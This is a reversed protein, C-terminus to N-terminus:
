GGPFEFPHPLGLDLYPSPDHSWAFEEVRERSTRGYRYRWLDYADARVTVHDDGPHGIWWDRVEPAVVELPPVNADALHQRWRGIAGALGAAVADPPPRRNPDLTEYLDAEHTLADGFLWRWPDGMTPHAATHDLHDFAATWAGLLQALDDDRHRAVQDDTWATSGYLDLRGSVWDEAIGTLHGTLDRVSWDPCARVTVNSEFGDTTVTEMIRAAVALYLHRHSNSESVVLM